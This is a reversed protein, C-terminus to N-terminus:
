SDGWKAASNASSRPALSDREAQRRHWWIGLGLFGLFATLIQELSLGMVGAHPALRWFELPFRLVAYGMLFVGVVVGPQRSRALYWYCLGALLLDKGMALLGAALGFLEQNIVNGLRGLALGLAAPIIVVDLLAWFNSSLFRSMFWLMVGAGIFGGHSSMGGQWLAFIDAPQAWFHAAEYFLAYGLRGGIILGLAGAAVIEVWQSRAFTLGRWRQLYPLLWAALLYGVVYLVGYWRISFGNIALVEARSPFLHLV